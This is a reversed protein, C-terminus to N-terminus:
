LSTLQKVQTSLVDMQTGGGYFDERGNAVLTQVTSNDTILLAEKEELVTKSGDMVKM